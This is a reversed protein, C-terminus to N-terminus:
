NKPLIDALRHAWYGPRRSTNAYALISIGIANDNGKNEEIDKNIHAQYFVLYPFKPVGIKRVVPDAPVDFYPPWAEPLTEINGLTYEVANAFKTSLLSGGLNLYNDAADALEAAAEPHERWNDRM